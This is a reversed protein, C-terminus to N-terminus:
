IWNKGRYDSALKYKGNGISIFYKKYTKSYTLSTANALCVNIYTESISWNCTNVYKKVKQVTIPEIIEGKNVAGVIERNVRERIKVYRRGGVVEKYV